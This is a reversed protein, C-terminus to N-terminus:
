RQWLKGMRENTKWYHMYQNAHLLATSSYTASHNILVEFEPDPPGPSLGPGDRQKM